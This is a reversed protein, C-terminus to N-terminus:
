WHAVNAKEGHLGNQRGKRHENKCIEEFFM